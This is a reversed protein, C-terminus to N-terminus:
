KQQHSIISIAKKLVEREQRLIENERELRKLEAELQKSDKGVATSRSVPQSSATHRGYKQRWRYLAKENIGLRISVESVSQGTSELLRVAEIKFEEPYTNQNKAM